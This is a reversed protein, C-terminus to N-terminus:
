GMLAGAVWGPARRGFLLFGLPLGASVAALYLALTILGAAGGGYIWSLCTVAGALTVRLIMTMRAGRETQRQQPWLCLATRWSRQRRHRPRHLPRLARVGAPQRHRHPRVDLRLRGSELR